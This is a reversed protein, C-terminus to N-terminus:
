GKGNREPKRKDRKEKEKMYMCIKMWLDKRIKHVEGKAREKERCLCACLSLSFSLSLNTFALNMKPPPQNIYEVCVWGCVSIGRGGWM